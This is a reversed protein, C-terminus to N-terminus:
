FTYIPIPLVLFHCQCCLSFTLQTARQPIGDNSMNATTGLMRQKKLLNSFLLSGEPTVLFREELTDDFFIITCGTKQM